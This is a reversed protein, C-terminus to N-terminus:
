RWGSMKVCPYCVCLIGRKIANDIGDGVYGCVTKNAQRSKVILATGAGGLVVAVGVGVQFLKSKLVKKIKSKLSKREGAHIAPAAGGLALGFILGYSIIKLTKM